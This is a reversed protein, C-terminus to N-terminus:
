APMYHLLQQRKLTEARNYQSAEWRGALPRNQRERSVGSEGPAEM